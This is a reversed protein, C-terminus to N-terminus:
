QQMAALNEYMAQVYQAHALSRKDDPRTRKLTDVMDQSRQLVDVATDARVPGRHGGIDPDVFWPATFDLQQQPTLVGAEGLSRGLSQLENWSIHRLDHGSLLERAAASKDLQPSASVAAPHAAAAATARGTTRATELPTNMAMPMQVRM